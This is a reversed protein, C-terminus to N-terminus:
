LAVACKFCVAANNVLADLHGFEREIFERTADITGTDCLDLKSVVASCGAAQLEAAAVAGAQEDRCGLVVTHDPLSGLKSAIEKGIGKNAQAVLISATQESSSLLLHSDDSAVYALSWSSM